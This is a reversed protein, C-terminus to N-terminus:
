PTGMLGARPPGSAKSVNGGFFSGGQFYWDLSALWDLAESAQIAEAKEQEIPAMFWRGSGTFGEYEVHYDLWLGGGTTKLIKVEGCYKRESGVIRFAEKEWDSGDPVFPGLYKM